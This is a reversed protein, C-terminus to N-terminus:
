KTAKFFAGIKAGQDFGDLIFQTWKDVEQNRKNAIRKIAHLHEKYYHSFDLVEVWKFGADKLAQSYNAVTVGVMSKYGLDINIQDYAKVYEASATDEHLVWHHFGFVGGKQLVRYAEAFAAEREHHAFGDPDQGFITDFSGDEFPLDFINEAVFNVKDDVLLQTATKRGKEIANELIDVGTIRLDHARALWVVTGGEGCCLDLINKRNKLDLLEVLKYTTEWGGHHMQERPHPWNSGLRDLYEDEIEDKHESGKPITLWETCNSAIFANIINTALITHVDM